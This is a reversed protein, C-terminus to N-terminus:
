DGYRNEVFSLLELIDETRSNSGLLIVVVMRDTGQINLEHLSISTQGAARTEGVKGGRFNDLDEVENFNVLGAFEDSVYATELKDKVTIEFIFSRQERIYQTLRYLDNLTSINDASLGSPDAFNTNLMGLQRAKANMADIFEERGLEGAITEAAENSSEVLLLQLLSYMSVSGRGSLRPILSTVFTPATVRVRGDLDLREAAVVATMLKTISAIPVPTDPDATALMTNNEIDAILYHPTKLDPVQQQYVFVEKQPPSAAHVLIPTDIKIEKYLDEAAEDSLRIGGGTFDEDVPVGDPYVPWGHIVYNGGFTLQWPLYVQGLSMFEREEKQSIQYLGSATEWWSGTEGAALIEASQYLVGNKFYHFQRTKLDVEIFTLAEAIFAERTEVFFDTQSLTIQPGYELPTTQNTQKDVILVTPASALNSRAALGYGSVSVVALLFVGAFVTALRLGLHWMLAKRGAEKVMQSARSDGARPILSGRRESPQDDAHSLLRISSEKM